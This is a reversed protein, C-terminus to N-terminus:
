DGGTTVKQHEYSGIDCRAGNGNRLADFHRVHPVDRQDFSLSTFSGDPWEANCGSPKGADIGPGQNQEFFHHDLDIGSPPISAFYAPLFSQPLLSVTSRIKDTPRSGCSADTLLNYGDGSLTTARCQPVGSFGPLATNNAVITNALSVTGSDADIATSLPALLHTNRNEVVTGGRVAIRGDLNTAAIAPGSPSHNGAITSQNINVLAAGSVAMAGGGPLTRQAFSANGTLDCDVMGVQTGFSKEGASPPGYVYIAGGSDAWNGTFSTGLIQVNGATSLAGGLEGRNQFFASDWIRLIASGSPAQSSIAGGGQLAENYAFISERIEVTGDVNLIGGGDDASGHLVKTRDIWAFGSNSLLSMGWGRDNDFFVDILAVGGSNAIFPLKGVGVAEMDRIESSLISLTGFNEIPSAGYLGRFTANNLVAYGSQRNTLRAAVVELASGTFQGANDISNANLATDSLTLSANSSNVITTDDIELNRGAVVGENDLSGGSLITWIGSDLSLEGTRTVRLDVTDFLHVYAFFRGGAVIEGGSVSEVRLDLWDGQDLVMTGSLDIRAPDPHGEITLSHPLTTGAVTHRGGSLYIDDSRRSQAIAYSLTACPRQTCDGSDTGSQDVFLNAARVDGVIVALAVLILFRSSVRM